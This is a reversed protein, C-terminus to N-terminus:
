ECFEKGKGHMTDIGISRQIVSLLNKDTTIYGIGNVMLDYAAALSCFPHDNDTDEDQVIFVYCDKNNIIILLPLPGWWSLIAILGRM